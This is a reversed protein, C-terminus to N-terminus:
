KLTLRAATRRKIYGDLNVSKGQFEVKVNVPAGIVLSYPLVGSVKLSDGRKKTGNFLNKGKADKIDVWCDGTFNMVLEDSNLTSSQNENASLANTSLANGTSNPMTNTSETNDIGQAAIAVHSSTSNAPMSNDTQALANGSTVTPASTDSSPQSQSNATKNLPVDTAVSKVEDAKDTPATSTASPESANKTMSILMNRQDSYNQWWWLGTMGLLLIIVGWTIKMLWGDRKKRIKQTSFSQMSSTKVVKSPPIQVDLVALIESESVQVLKAYARVYGRLFTPGVNDPVNDEEIDRVTSVKLCLRDAVTQQSLEFKERAQRLIQGATLKTEEPHNETKM